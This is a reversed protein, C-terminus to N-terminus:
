PGDDGPLYVAEATSSAGAAPRAITTASSTVFVREVRVERCAALLNRMGLVSRQMYAPSKDSLDPAAAMFVYNFGPLVELLEAPELLDAVLTPVGLAAVLGPDSNWRRLGVVQVHSEALARVLHRGVFGTAGVVLAREIESGSQM